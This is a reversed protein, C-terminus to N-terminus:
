LAHQGNSSVGSDKGDSNRFGPYMGHNAQVETLLQQVQSSFPIRRLIKMLTFLVSKFGEESSQQGLLQLHFRNGPGRAWPPPAVPPPPCCVAGAWSVLSGLPLCQEPGAHPRTLATHGQCLGCPVRGQAGPKGLLRVVSRLFLGSPSGTPDEGLDALFWQLSHLFAGM